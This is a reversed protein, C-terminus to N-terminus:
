SSAATAGGNTDPQGIAGAHNGYHEGIQTYAAIGAKMRELMSYDPANVHPVLNPPTAVPTSPPLTQGATQAALTTAFASAQAGTLPTPGAKGGASGTGKAGSIQDSLWSAGKGISMIAGIVGGVALLPLM